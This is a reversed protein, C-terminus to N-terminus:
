ESMNGSRVVSLPPGDLAVVRHALALVEPQHSSLLVPRGLAAIASMLAQIRPTDVGTFPEDLLYLEGGLALTRVLALRRGMGGSLASPYAHADGELGALELWSMAEGRRAKPLVDTIQQVVTRQPFLRNEQFLMATKLPSIGTISGSNLPVLGAIARLLTTKGCGSPGTLATIGEDLLTLSFDQLVTKDGFSVTLHSLNM